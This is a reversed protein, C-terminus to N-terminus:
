AKLLAPHARLWAELEARLKGVLRVLEDIEHESFAASAEYTARNRKKRWAELAGVAARDAGVTLALSAITIAHHGPLNTSTRYGAAHLAASALAVAANYALLFRGETSLGAVRSDALRRDALAVLSAIEQRAPKHRKLRGEKLWIEFSVSM